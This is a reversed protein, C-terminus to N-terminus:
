TCEDAGKHPGTIAPVRTMCAHVCEGYGLPDVGEPATTVVLGDSLYVSQWTLVANVVGDRVAAGQLMLGGGKGARAFFDVASTENGASHAAAASPPNERYSTHAGLASPM